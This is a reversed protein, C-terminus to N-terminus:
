SAGGVRRLEDGAQRAEGDVLEDELVDVGLPALDDAPHRPPHERALPDRPPELDRSIEIGRYFARVEEEDRDADAARLRSPVVLRRRERTAADPLLRGARAAERLRHPGDGDHEVDGLAHPLEASGARPDDVERVGDADDGAGEEVAAVAGDAEAVDRDAEL